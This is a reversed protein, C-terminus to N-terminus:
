VVSKRDIVTDLPGIAQTETGNLVIAYGDADTNRGVTTTMFRLEGTSEAPPAASDSGCACLAACGILLWSRAACPELHRTM